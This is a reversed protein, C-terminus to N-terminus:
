RFTILSGPPMRQSSGQMGDSRSAVLLKYAYQDNLQGAYERSNTIPMCLEAALRCILAEKFCPSYASVSEVRAIYKVFIPAYNALINNGEVSYIANQPNVFNTGGSQSVLVVRLLDNPVPFSQTFQFAPPIAKPQDLIVRKTAFSWNHDELVADRVTLYNQKCLEADVTEQAFSSIPGQGLKALALNCIDIAAVQWVSAELLAQNIQQPCTLESM